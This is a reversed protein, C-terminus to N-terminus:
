AKSMNETTWLCLSIETCNIDIVYVTSVHDFTRANKSLTALNNRKEPEDQSLCSLLVVMLNSFM